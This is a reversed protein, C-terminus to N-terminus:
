LSVRTPKGEERNTSQDSGDKKAPCPRGISTGTILVSANMREIEGDLVGCLHGNNRLDLVSLLTLKGLEKPVTGSLELDRLSLTGDLNTLKGLSPPITGTLRNDALIFDCDHPEDNDFGLNTLMGLSDPITGVLINSSLDFDNSLETLQGLEAPITGTFGNVQFPRKAVAASM